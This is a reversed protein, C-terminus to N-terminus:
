PETRPKAEPSSSPNMVPHPSHYYSYHDSYGTLEPPHVYRGLDGWKSEILVFGKEGVARVVGSHMIGRAGNRYVIIDGVQPHTVPEYDYTELIQEVSYNDLLHSPGGAFTWDHCNYRHDPPGTQIAGQPFRKKRLLTDAEPASVAGKTWAAAELFRWYLCGALCGTALMLVLATRGAERFPSLPHGFM